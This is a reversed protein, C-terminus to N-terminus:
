FKPPEEELLSQAIREQERKVLWRQQLMLAIFLSVGLLLGFIFIIQLLSYDSSNKAQPPTWQIHNAMLVPAFRGTDRAEYTYMRYIYGTVTVHDIAQEGIPMGEPFSTSLVVTPNSQSDDTYLWAECLQDVGHENKGADSIVTRQLHGSMIVPRGQYAEPDLYMDVYVPFEEFPRKSYKSQKWREKLFENAAIKVQEPNASSAYGLVRYYIENEEPLFGTRRTKLPIDTLWPALNEVSVAQEPAIGFPSEQAWGMEQQFCFAIFLSLVVLLTRSAISSLRCDFKHILVARCDDITSNNKCQMIQATQHFTFLHFLPIESFTSVM